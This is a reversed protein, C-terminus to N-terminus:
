RGHSLEELAKKLRNMEMESGISIRLTEPVQNSCNQVLIKKSFLFNEVKKADQFQVFLFNAEGPFTKKVYDLKSLFAVFNERLKSVQDKIESFIGHLELHSIIIESSSDPFIFMTQALRLTNLIKEQAIAIGCRVGALGWFKSLTRLVILNPYKYIWEACSPQNTWEIYAEDIVVIGSFNQIAKEIEQLNLLTGVPNSPSCLFLVKANSHRISELNLLQYHEGILPIDTISVNELSARYSYYPFTPSTILISDIEPECFVRIILDIAEVSGQTFLTNEENLSLTKKFPLSLHSIAQLYKQALLRNKLEPYYRYPNSSLSNINLNLYCFNKDEQYLNLPYKKDKFSLYHKRALEHIM